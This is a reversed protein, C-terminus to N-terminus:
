WNEWWGKKLNRKMPSLPATAPGAQTPTMATARIENVIAAKLAHFEENEKEKKEEHERLLSAVIRRTTKLDKKAKNKDSKSSGTWAGKYNGHAKRHANLEERSM